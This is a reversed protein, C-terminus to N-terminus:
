KLEKMRLKYLNDLAKGLKGTPELNICLGSVKFIKMLTSNPKSKAERRINIRLEILDAYGNQIILLQERLDDILQIRERKKKSIYKKM